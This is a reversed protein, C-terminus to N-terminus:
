PLAVENDSPNPDPLYCWPDLIAVAPKQNIEITLRTIGNTLHHQQLYLPKTHTDWQPSPQAFLGITVMEDVRQAQLKGNVQAAKVLKVELEVKYRGGSLTDVRKLTLQNDYETVKELLSEIQAVEMTSAGTKLEKILDTTLACQNPYGHKALLNQLARNMREEGLMEQIAYMALGGKQYYVYLQHSRFPPLEQESSQNRLAFYLNNDAQLLRRLYPKGFRKETAMYETYKALSETLMARGPASQPALANAWWQHGVEHATIAYINNFRSSDTLDSMFNLREASFLVGPYATAAGPYRAIAALTLQKFPYPGWHAQGYDLADKMAQELVPLNAQQGPQYYLNLAIGKHTSQKKAYVASSLAFMFAIPRPAKYHYFRRGKDDWEKQLTGATVVQQGTETSIETEFDVFHYNSDSATAPAPPQLGLQKRAQEDAVEYRDNYGLRPLYKELEIYTGNGAISHEANFPTFGSQTVETGFQITTTDGPLLPQKLQYFAQKFEVDNSRQTAQPISYTVTTVEPDIGLWLTTLTAASENRLLYSGQVTYRGQSPYLQVQLKVSTIYPQTVSDIARYKKEYAAQWDLKNQNGRATSVRPTQQYIYFGTSFWVIMFVVLAVLGPTKWRQGIRLVRQWLSTFAGGQWLGAGLLALIGAFATWYLLHWHVANAVEGFGNMYTYEMSPLAAYRVLMSDLGLRRGFLIIAVVVMSLLIGLYKNGALTQIFVILVAFLFLPWGSYYFLSGYLLWDIHTYGHFWQFGIGVAINTTILVAILVGLTACKAGWIVANPVPTSFVLGQMNAGRERSILEGAYFLLLLLAPRMSLLYDVIYGTAAYFKINYPGHLITEKMDITFLFAWLALMVLFPIHKFVSLTELKLQSRFTQFGYKFGTAYTKVTRYPMLAIAPSGTTRQKGAAAVPLRFRFFRYSLYLVVAALATWVIRNILFPGALPFLQHNRAEVPWSRTIGFFSTIGFPDLLHPLLGYEHTKLSSNAMLPSNGLISGIFYLMFLMVGTVYVARVQRTLVAVGFIVSSCFLINPWGFVLLPQVFNQLHFAGLEEPRAQMTGIYIGAVGITLIFFVALLFGALRTGFYTIRRLTTTFLLSNFDYTTDRLVVNACFLTSVFIAFLSLMCTIYAIVYPANRHLESSGFNGQAILIGLALFLIAAIIFTIQRAHYKLEFVLLHKLM